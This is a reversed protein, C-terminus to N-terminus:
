HCASLFELAMTQPPGVKLCVWLLFRTGLLAVGPAKLDSTPTELSNRTGQERPGCLDKHAGLQASLIRDSDVVWPTNRLNSGWSRRLPEFRSSRKM